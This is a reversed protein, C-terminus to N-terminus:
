FLIHQFNEGPISFMDEQFKTKTVNLCFSAAGGFHVITQYGIAIRSQRLNFQQYGFPFTSYIGTFASTTNMAIANRLVPASISNKVQLVQNQKALLIFVKGVTELYKFEVPIYTIKHLIKRQYDDKLPIRRTLLLCDIRDLSPNRNDSNKYFKPRVGTLRLKVENKTRSCYLLPSSTLRNKM